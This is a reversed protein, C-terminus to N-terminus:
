GTFQNKILSKKKISKKMENEISESEVKWTDNM